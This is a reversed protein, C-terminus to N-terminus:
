GVDETTRAWGGDAEALASGRPSMTSWVTQWGHDAFCVERTTCQHEAMCAAMKVGTLGEPAHRARKGSSPPRGMGSAPQRECQNNRPRLTRKQQPEYPGSIGLLSRKGFHKLGNTAEQDAGPAEPQLSLKRTPNAGVVDTCRPLACLPVFDLVPEERAVPPPTRQDVIAGDDLENGSGGGGRTEGHSACEVFM